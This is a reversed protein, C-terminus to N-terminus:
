QSLKVGIGIVVNKINILKVMEKIVIMTLIAGLMIISDEIKYIVLIILLV